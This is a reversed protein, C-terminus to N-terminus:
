SSRTVTSRTSPVTRPSMRASHTRSPTSCVEVAASGARLRLADARDLASELRYTMGDREWLLTNAALRARDQQYEGTRDLYVFTHEAGSLWYGNAGNM